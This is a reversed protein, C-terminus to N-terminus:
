EKILEETIDIPIKVEAIVINNKFGKISFDAAEGYMLELRNKTGTIGFGNKNNVQHLQGTNEIYLFLFSNEIITSIKITGGEEVKSIGHKISNEVLTQLMMPPVQLSLTNEAINYEIQLRNEFRIKELALYSRVIELERELTTTAINESQMSSRLLISLQTIALRARIPNEDVLFRISNLANFIFHPNIHTKITKLELEKVLSELRVKDLREKNSKAVYHYAFYLLNWIFIIIFSVIWSLFLVPERHSNNAPLNIFNDTAINMLTLLLSVFITSLLLFSIQKKLGKQLINSRVIIARLITTILIGELMEIFGVVFFSRTVHQSFSIYLICTFIFDGLWGGLQFVWFSSIKKAM